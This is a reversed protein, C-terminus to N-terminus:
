YLGVEIVQTAVLIVNDLGADRKFRKRITDEKTKRDKKLFRSHLLLVETGTDRGPNNRLSQYMDQARAVTNCIVTSRQQHQAIIADTNGLLTQDIVQYERQKGQQSPIQKLETETVPVVEANLYESLHKLLPESFTATMLLFPTIGNLMKLMEIVTGLSTDPDFLHFEDFVLYAGVVAGANVNGQRKGLAYPINLFSSLVQDITTFILDSRFQRDDQNEGTQIEAKFIEQEGIPSEKFDTHFNRALVRMPTTYLLKRPFPINEQQALLFPFLAAKTKGAGTPAQLIVNRGSLLHQAVKRQFAFPIFEFMTQFQNDWYQKDRNFNLM